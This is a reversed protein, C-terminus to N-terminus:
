LEGQPDASSFGVLIWSSLYETGFMAMFQHLSCIHSPDRTVTDTAYALLPLESEVGLEPIEM